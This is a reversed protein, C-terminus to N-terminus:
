RIECPHHAMRRGDPSDWRFDIFGKWQRQAQIKIHYIFLTGPNVSVKQKYNVWRGGLLDDIDDKFNNQLNDFISVDTASIIRIPYTNNSDFEMNDTKNNYSVFWRKYWLKNIQPRIGIREVECVRKAEVYFFGDYTQGANLLLPKGVGRQNYPRSSHFYSLFM